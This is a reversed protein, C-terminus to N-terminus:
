MCTHLFLFRFVFLSIFSFIEYVCVCRVLIEKTMTLLLSFSLLGIIVGTFHFSGILISVAFAYIVKMFTNGRNYCFLFFFYSDGKSLLTQWTGQVQISHEFLLLLTWIMSIGHSFVAEIYTIFLYFSLCIFIYKTVAITDSLRRSVTVTPSLFFYLGILVWIFHFSWHFSMIGLTLPSVNWFCRESSIISFLYFFNSFRAIVEGSQHKLGM